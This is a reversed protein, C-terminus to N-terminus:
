LSGTCTFGPSTMSALINSTSPAKTITSPSASRTTSGATASTGPSPSKTCAAGQTADARKQIGLANNPWLTPQPFTLSDVSTYAVNFNSVFASWNRVNGQKNPKAAAVDTSISASIIAATKTILDNNSKVKDTIWTSYADAWTAQVPDGKTDKLPDACGAQAAILDDIGKFAAYVRGNTASFLEKVKDDNAMAMVVAINSLSQICAESNASGLNAGKLDPNWLSGKLRNLAADMGLFDPNELSAMQGFITNLRTGGTSGDNVDFLDTIDGCTFGAELQAQFFEDLISVEDSFIM